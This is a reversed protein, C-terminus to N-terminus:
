AVALKVFIATQDSEYVVAGSQHFAFEYRALVRSAGRRLETARATIELPADVTALQKFRADRIRAGYGIWGDAHRLELLYYSHAMGVMATLHIILGGNVHRPHRVPHVRQSRTLPLEAHTPVRVRILSRDRDIELIEDFLLAEEAYAADAVFDPDLAM